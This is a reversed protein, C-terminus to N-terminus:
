GADDSVTSEETSSDVDTREILGAEVAADVESTDEEPEPDPDPGNEIIRRVTSFMEEAKEEITPQDLVQIRLGFNALVFRIGNDVRKNYAEELDEGPVVLTSGAYPLYFGFTYRFHDRFLMTLVTMMIQRKQVEAEQDPTALGTMITELNMGCHAICEVATGLTLYSVGKARAMDEAEQRRYYVRLDDSYDGVAGLAHDFDDQITQGANPLIWLESDGKEFFDKSLEYFAEGLAQKGSGPGGVLGISVPFDVQM